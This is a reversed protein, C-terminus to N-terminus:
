KVYGDIQGLLYKEKTVRNMEEGVTKKNEIGHYIKEIPNRVSELFDQEDHTIYGDSSAKNRIGVLRDYVDDGAVKGVNIKYDLNMAKKAEESIETSAIEEELNKGEEEGKNKKVEEQEQLRLNLKKLEQEMRNRVQREEIIAVEEDKKIQIELEEVEDELEKAKQKKEGEIQKLLKVKEAPSLNKPIEEVM